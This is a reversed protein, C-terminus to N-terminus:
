LEIGQRYAPCRRGRVTRRRRFGPLSRRDM